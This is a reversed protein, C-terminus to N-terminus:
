SGELVRDLSAVIRDLEDDRLGPQASRVHIVAIRDGSRFAFATITGAWSASNESWTSSVVGARASKYPERPMADAVSSACRKVQGLVDSTADAPVLTVTITPGSWLNGTSSAAVTGNVGAFSPCAEQGVDVPQLRRSFRPGLEVRGLLSTRETAPSFTAPKAAALGPLKPPIPFAPCSARYPEDRPGVDRWEQETLNRGAATCAVDDWRDVDLNWTLLRKGETAVLQAPSGAMHIPSALLAPFSGGIRRRTAVDFLVVHHEILAALVTGDRSFDLSYVLGEEGIDIGGADSLNGGDFLAIRGRRAFAALLKGTPDFAPPSSSNMDIQSPSLVRAVKWSATDWVVATASYNSATLWRGDPSFTAGETILLGFDNGASLEVLDTLHALRKGSNVDVVDFTGDQYALAIRTGDLSVDLAFVPGRAQVRGLIAGVNGRDHITVQNDRWDIEVVRGASDVYGGAGPREFINRTATASREWVRLVGGANSSIYRGDISTGVEKFYTHFPTDNTLADALLERGDLSVLAPKTQGTALLRGDPSIALDCSCPTPLTDLIENKKWDKVVVETEATLALRRDDIFRVFQGVGGLPHPLGSEVDFVTTGAALQMGTPSLAVNLAQPAAVSPGIRRGSAVDWVSITGVPNSLAAVRRGDSSVDLWSVDNVLRFRRRERRTTADWVIITGGAHGTVVVDGGAALANIPEAALIPEGTARLSDDVIEVRKGGDTTLVRGDALRAISGGLIGRQMPENREALLVRTNVDFALVGTATRALFVRGAKSFLYQGVVPFSGLYRPNATLVRQLAGIADIRDANPRRSGEVALLYAVEPDSSAKAEATALLRRTEALSRADSAERQGRRADSRQSVAIGGGILAIVLMSAVAILLRRTRRTVRANREREADRFKRGTELFEREAPTLQDTSTTAWELAEDLRAGRYLDDDTRGRLVWTNTVDALHRLRRLGDRDEDLWANLRPWSRLLAEHAIEVTRERSLPERDLVLLRHRVFQDVVHEPVTALERVAVRRGTDDRGDGLSVLRSFLRRSAAQDEGSLALYLSDARRAIGDALGGVSALVDADIVGDRHHDFLEAMVFQLLPLSGPHTAVEAALTASVDASVRVGSRAAPETIAHEIEAATMPVISILGDRVLPGLAPDRLPWDYFDARLTAVVRTTSGPAACAALLRIFQNRLSEDTVLTWLEEMQDVVVVVEASPDALAGGLDALGRETQLRQRLASIPAVVVTSLAAELSGLPDAGPVMTAIFRRPNQRLQPVAGAFVLSSKGSGSAGVVVTFPRSEIAGVLAQVLAARGVFDEADTERFARLGKFPNPGTLRPGANVHEDGIARHWALTFEAVTDFRDRPDPATARWLVDDLARPLGRVVSGLSRLRSSLKHTLLQSHDAATYPPVGTLLEWLTAALGFQDSRPSAEGDRMLEPSSYVSSGFPLAAGDGRHAIVAIGFDVLYADGREDFLLNAPKLDRHVIGIAHAASLADSVQDLLATVTALPFPGSAALRDSASGGRLLRMVLCASGPERWFDYLPVIHPHELRAVMRAEAEFRRVFEAGDALEPRLVKVAVERGVDTQVARHVSGFAGQGIVEGLVYGRLPRGAPMALAQDGVAIRHELEALSPSPELGSADVLRARFRNLARLSDAPRGSRYLAIALQTTRRERLPEQAVLKELEPVVEGAPLLLLRVDALDEEARHRGETLRLTTPRAWWEDSAEGFPEGRWLALADRLLHEAQRPSSSRSEEVLREFRDADVSGSEPSGGIDLCYGGPGAVIAEGLVTRLRSVYTMVARRAGDPAEGEPWMADVLRDASVANPRATVLVGVLRRQQPGGLTVARGDRWVEVPGLIKVDM